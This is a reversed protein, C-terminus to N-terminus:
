TGRHEQDHRLPDSQPHGISLLILMDPLLFLTVARVPKDIGMGFAITAVVCQLGFLLAILVYDARLPQCLQRAQLEDTVFNRHM